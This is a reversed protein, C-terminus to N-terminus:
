SGKPKPKVKAKPKTPEAPRVRAPILNRWDVRGLVAYQGITFLNSTVFYLALGSAFTLAFYGMLLPMYLNMMQTMQGGGQEGTTPQSTAMLKSQVYSTIVVIIALFPLGQGLIPVTEPIFPLPIREPQSLDMWLFQSNIPILLAVNAPIWSYILQSFQFLQLPSSALARIITQYLGIIIPFQLLTPLCAGFPSVGTEKYLKMQEQTLKERDGKHKKQIDLWEKSKQLDQMKKSSKIQQATFPHTILRIVITFVIIALGFNLFLLNYIFLLINTMPEIIFTSWIDM